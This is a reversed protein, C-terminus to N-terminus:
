ICLAGLEYLKVQTAYSELAIIFFAMTLHTQASQCCNTHFKCSDFAKGAAIRKFVPKLEEVQECLFDESGNSAHSILDPISEVLALLAHSFIATPEGCTCNDSQWQVQKCLSQFLQQQSSFADQPVQVDKLTVNVAQKIAAIAGVRTEELSLEDLDCDDIVDQLDEHLYHHRLIAAVVIGSDNPNPLVLQVARGVLALADREWDAAGPYIQGAM